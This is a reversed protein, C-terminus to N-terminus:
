FSSPNNVCSCCSVLPFIMSIKRNFLLTTLLQKMLNKTTYLVVSHEFAVYELFVKQLMEKSRGKATATPALVKHGLRSLMQSTEQRTETKCPQLCSMRNPHLVAIKGSLFPSKCLKCMNNHLHRTDQPNKDHLTKNM